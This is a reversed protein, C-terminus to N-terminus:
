NGEDLGVSGYQGQGGHGLHQALTPSMEPSQVYLEPIVGAAYSNRRRQPNFGPPLASNPSLYGSAKGGLEEGSSPCLLGAVSAASPRRGRQHTMVM